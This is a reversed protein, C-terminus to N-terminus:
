RPPRGGRSRDSWVLAADLVPRFIEFDVAATLRELPDSAASLAAYREDVDFFRPQGAMGMGMGMGKAPCLWHILEVALNKRLVWNYM